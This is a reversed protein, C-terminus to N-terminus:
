PFKWNTPISGVIEVNKSLDPDAKIKDEIYKVAQAPTMTGELVNTVATTFINALKPYYPNIPTLKTYALMKSVNVLFQINIPNVTKQVIPAIAEKVRPDLNIKLSKLENIWTQNEMLKTAAKRVPLHGSIICHIAIIDPDSAKVVLLFAIMHYIEKYENYDPNEKGANSAIYWVFPQSLTLPKDGPDGAPFLTYYFYKKVEEATLPRYKGLKKDYYYPQAQWETWHWTGGIWILTKGSVVAPHIQKAWDWSMMDKPILGDRAMLWEVYLWKYVAAVPLVLKGTSPDELKGGFAYIFQILDPHATGKRHLVGWESCGTKKALEAYKFVDHWTVKGEKIKEALNSLINIGTKKAICAAVDTRWYLPRAETDQPVAYYHGKYIVAKMISPYFDSFLNHYAKIYNTLDLIYGQSAFEAIYKYSNAMIDPNSGSQFAAAFDDALKDGGGRRFLSKQSDIVIKFDVHNNELIINLRHAAEFIAYERLVSNPDGAAWVVFKVEKIGKSSLYKGISVIDTEVNGTLHPPALSTTSSSTPTTTTSTIIKGKTTHHHAYEAVGVAVAIIVIIAVTIAIWTGRSAM